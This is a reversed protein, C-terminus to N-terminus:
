GLPRWAGYIVLATAIAYLVWGPHRGRTGWCNGISAFLYSSGVLVAVVVIGEPGLIYPAAILALGGLLWNYGSFDLLLPVLRTISAPFQQEDSLVVRLPAAMKRRVLVGHIVAVIAGIAGALILAVDQM